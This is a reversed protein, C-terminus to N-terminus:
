GVSAPSSALATPLEGGGDTADLGGAALGPGPSPVAATGGVLQGARQSGSGVLGVLLEGLEGVKGFLCRRRRGLLRCRGGHAQEGSPLGALPQGPQYLLQLDGDLAGALHDALGAHPQGALDGAAGSPQDAQVIRIGAQDDFAAQALQHLEAVLSLDGVVRVPDHQIVLELDAVGLRV